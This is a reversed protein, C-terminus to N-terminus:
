ALVAVRVLVLLAALLLYFPLVSMSRAARITLAFGSAPAVIFVDEVTATGAHLRRVFENYRDRFGQPVRARDRQHAVELRRFGSLSDRNVTRGRFRSFPRTSVIARRNFIKM